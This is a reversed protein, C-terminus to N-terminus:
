PALGPADWIQDTSCGCKGLAVQDGKGTKSAQVCVDEGKLKIRADQSDGWPLSTEWDQSANGDACKEVVVATREKNATLCFDPTAAEMNRLKTAGLSVSWRGGSKGHGGALCEELYVPSSPTTDYDTRMCLAGNARMVIGCGEDIYSGDPAYSPVCASRKFPAASVAALFLSLTSFLM